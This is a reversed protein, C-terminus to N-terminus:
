RAPTPVRTLAPTSIHCLSSCRQARLHGSNADPKKGMIMMDEVEVLPVCDVLTEASSFAVEFNQRRNQPTLKSYDFADPFFNHVLACFAMGDSWSSSFNQIDVHEYGRTKARCWDLLMQKISNANPVGFSSSRQVTTQSAAPNSSGSEKQLKEMMAKRAQSASTKPLSQAKMLEKKKEAQRRELAALSSQRSASEDERDFVSGTKKSSSSYSSKTQVFTSNGNDSRKVYSSEMTTTRSTKTGDSSQVLRETKTITSCASGDASQTSQRTTTETAHGARGAVSQSRAEQLRQDREKERQDRKRQRLERMANRILRREEFDTTRDLMKDLVDEDEIKSLEEVNLKSRKEVERVQVKEMGNPLEPERRPAQHQEVVEPEMSSNSRSLHLASQQRTSSFTPPHAVPGGPEETGEFHACPDQAELFLTSIDEGPPAQLGPELLDLRRGLRGLEARLELHEQELTQLAQALAQVRQLAWELQGEAAGRFAVLEQRLEALEAAGAQALGELSLGPMTATCASRRPGSLQGSGKIPAWAGGRAPPQGAGQRRAIRTGAAPPGTCPHQALCWVQCHM